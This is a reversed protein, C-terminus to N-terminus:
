FPASNYLYAAYVAFCLLTIFFFILGVAALAVLGSLLGWILGHTSYINSVIKFAYVLAVM